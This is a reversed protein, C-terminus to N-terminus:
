QSSDTQTHTKKKLSFMEVNELLNSLLRPACLYLSDSQCFPNLAGMLCFHLRWIFIESVTFVSFQVHFFIIIPFSRFMTVLPEGPRCTAM